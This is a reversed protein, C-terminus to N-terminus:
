SIKAKVSKFKFIVFTQKSSIKVKRSKFKFLKVKNPM